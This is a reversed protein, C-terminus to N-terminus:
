NDKLPCVACRNRPLKIEGNKFKCTATSIFYKHVTSSLIFNLFILQNLQFDILLVANALNIVFNDWFHRITARTIVFLPGCKVHICRQAKWLKLFSLNNEKPQRSVRRKAYFMEVKHSILKESQITVVVIEVLMVATFVVLNLAVAAGAFTILMSVQKWCRIVVLIVFISSFHLFFILLGVAWNIAESMSDFLIRLRSYFLICKSPNMQSLKRTISLVGFAVLLVLTAIISCWRFYEQTSAVVLFIRLLKTMLSSLTWELSQNDDHLLFYFPDMKLLVCGVSAFPPAIAAFLTFSIISIGLYDQDCKKQSKSLWFEPAM